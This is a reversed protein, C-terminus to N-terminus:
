DRKESFNDYHEMISVKITRTCEEGLREITKFFIDGCEGYFINGTNIELSEKENYIMLIAGSMRIGIWKTKMYFNSCNCFHRDYSINDPHIKDGKKRFFSVYEECRIVKGENKQILSIINDLLVIKNEIDEKDFHFNEKESDFVTTYLNHEQM